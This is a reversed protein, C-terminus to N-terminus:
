HRKETTRGEWRRHLRAQSRLTINSEKKRMVVGGFHLWNGFETLEDEQIDSSIKM